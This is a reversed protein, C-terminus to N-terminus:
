AAVNKLRNLWDHTRLGYYFETIRRSKAHKRRIGTHIGEGFESTGDAWVIARVGTGHAHGDLVAPRDLDAAIRIMRRRLAHETGLHRTVRFARMM